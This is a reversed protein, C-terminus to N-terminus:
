GTYELHVKHLPEPSGFRRKMYDQGEKESGQQVVLRVEPYQELLWRKAEHTLFKQLDDETRNVLANYYGVTGMPTLFSWALLEGNEVHQLRVGHQISSDFFFLHARVAEEYSAAGKAQMRCAFVDLLRSAEDNWNEDYVETVITRERMFRRIVKQYERCYEKELIVQRQNVYQPYSNDDHFSYEDWPVDAKVFGHEHWWLQDLVPINKVRVSMDKEHECQAVALIGARRKAGLAHVIVTASREDGPYRKTFYVICDDNRYVHLGNRTAQVIYPWCNEFAAIQVDPTRKLFTYFEQELSLEQTYHVHASSLALIEM